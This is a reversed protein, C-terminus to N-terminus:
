DDDSRELERTLRAVARSVRMRAGSRGAFHFKKVLDDLTVSEFILYQTLLWRDDDSIQQMASEIDIAACHLEERQRAQRKGDRITAAHQKDMFPWSPNTRTRGLPSDKGLIVTHLTPAAIQYDTGQVDLSLRIDLYSRLLREVMNPTYDLM